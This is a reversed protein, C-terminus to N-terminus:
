STGYLSFHRGFGIVGPTDLSPNTIAFINIEPNSKFRNRRYHLRLVAKIMFALLDLNLTFAAMIRTNYGASYRNYFGHRGQDYSVKYQHVLRSFQADSLNVM